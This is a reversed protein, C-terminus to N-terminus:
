DGNYWVGGSQSCPSAVAVLHGCGRVLLTGIPGSRQSPVFSLIIQYNEVKSFKFIVSRM